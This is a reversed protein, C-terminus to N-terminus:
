LALELMVVRKAGGDTDQEGVAVFGYRDHFRLSQDNRPQINVEACVRPIGDDRCRRLYEDYLSRGIGRAHVSPDVAIRDVYGFRDHRASFWGYNVSAYPAGPGLTILFGVVEHRVLAVLFHHAWGRLDALSRATLESVAPVAANNMVLIRDLDADVVERVTPEPAM